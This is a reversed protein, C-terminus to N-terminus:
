GRIRNAPTAKKAPRAPTILISIDVASRYASLYPSSATVPNMARSTPIKQSELPQLSTALLMVAGDDASVAGDAPTVSLAQPWYMESEKPTIVSARHSLKNAQDAELVQAYAGSFDATGLPFLLRNTCTPKTTTRAKHGYWEHLLITPRSGLVSGLFRRRCLRAVVRTPIVNTMISESATVYPMWFPFSWCMTSLIVAAPLSKVLTPVLIPAM